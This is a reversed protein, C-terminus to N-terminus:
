YAGEKPKPEKKEGTEPSVEAEVAMTSPVLERMEEAPLSVEVSEEMMEEEVGKVVASEASPGASSSQGEVKAPDDATGTTTADDNPPTALTSPEEGKLGCGDEEEVEGKAARVANPTKEVTTEDKVPEGECDGGVEMRSAGEEEEGESATDWKSKPPEAVAVIPEAVIPETEVKGGEGEGEGEGEDVASRRRHKHKKKSKRKHKNRQQQPVESAKALLSPPSLLDAKGPDERSGTESSPTVTSSPDTPPSTDLVSGAEELSLKKNETASPSHNPSRHQRSRKHKPEKEAERSRTAPTPTPNPSPSGHRKRKNSHRHRSRGEGKDRRSDKGERGRKSSFAYRAEDQGGGRRKERIERSRNRRGGRELKHRRRSSHRSRVKTSAYPSRSRSRPSDSYSSGMSSTSRSRSSASSYSSSSGSGTRRVKRASFFVYFHLM